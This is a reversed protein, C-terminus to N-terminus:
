PCAWSILWCFLPPVDCLSLGGGNGRLDMVLARADRATKMVGDVEGTTFVFGPFRLIMVGGDLNKYQFRRLDEADGFERLYGWIGEAVSLQRIKAEIELDKKDGTPSLVSIRLSPQPRLVNHVFNMKWLNDRAPAIGYIAVVEDGRKVGKEEADTGPRVGTVYCKQGIMQIRWGYDHIYPRPPPLFFTHSDNLIDLAAAVESLGRNLSAANDIRQQFNKISAGWDIGHLKPDYYHKKVDDSITNLMQRVEDREFKAIKPQEQQGNAWHILFPLVWLFLSARITLKKIHM